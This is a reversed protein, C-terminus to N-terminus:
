KRNVVFQVGEPGVKAKKGEFNFIFRKGKKLEMDTEPYEDGISKYFGVSIDKGPAEIAFDGNYESIRFWSIERGVPFIESIGIIRQNADTVCWTENFDSLDCEATVSNGELILFDRPVSTESWDFKVNRKELRAKFSEDVQITTLLPESDNGYFMVFVYYATEAMLNLTGLNLFLFLSLLLKKM